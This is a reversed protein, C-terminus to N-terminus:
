FMYGSLKGLMHRNEFLSVLVRDQVISWDTEGADGDFKKFTDYEVM